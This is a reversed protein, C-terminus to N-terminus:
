KVCMQTILQPTRLCVQLLKGTHKGCFISCVCVCVCVYHLMKVAAKIWRHLITLSLSM